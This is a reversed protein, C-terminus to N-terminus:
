KSEEEKAARAADRRDMEAAVAKPANLIAALLKANEAEAREARQQLEKAWHKANTAAREAEDRQKSFYAYGGSEMTGTLDAKLREVEARLEGITWAHKVAADNAAKYLARLRGVEAQLSKITMMAVAYQDERIM